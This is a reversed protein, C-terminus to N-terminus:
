SIGQLFRVFLDSQSSIGLKRYINKRHIKVTGPSIETVSAISKSSHGKLILAAIEQERATLEDRGFGAIARSVSQSPETPDEPLSVSPGADFHRRNLAAFVPLVCHVKALERRRFRQEAGIRGVSYFLWRQGQLPVFVAMEDRLDLAQYYRRHYATQQFRDPAVDRLLVADEERHKLCADYLPDLLYAGDLYRDVVEARREARVNDYLHRPPRHDRVMVLLAGIFPAAQRLYGLVAPVFDASGIAVIARALCAEPTTHLSSEKIYRQPPLRDSRGTAQYPTPDRHVNVTRVRSSFPSNNGERRGM